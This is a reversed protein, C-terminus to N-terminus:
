QFPGFKRPLLLVRWTNDTTLPESGTANTQCLALDLNISSIPQQVTVNYSITMQTAFTM